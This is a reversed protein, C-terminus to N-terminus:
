VVRVEGSMLKPLLTDRLQTLTRIQDTNSKIKQLHEKSVTHFREILRTPPLQFSLNFIDDPNVRQHSGSTGGSANALEQTVQHSKLFCFIFGFWSTDKPKVIQFETSCIAYQPINEGYLEWIRPFRPNLKSILISNPVVKYKNSLIDKGIEAKPNKGEDFAPLSYHHFVKDPYKSPNISEKFHDAIDGLKKEEWSEEAEEIFWQRFLTEAIAELTKNQRHLLDIKDDLSSLISEIANQYKLDPISVNVESLITTNISPMTAGVAIRRITEKFNEQGFYYSLFKPNVKNKDVRVRLCRGSFMWGDENRSVFARRDVSGVRSFVIDGEILTYKILRQKDVDCVLPLNYHLIKNEGLHEVTIMPTGIEKYDSMHLQSGFPGTQVNAIERLNYEKWDPLKM